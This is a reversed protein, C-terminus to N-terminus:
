RWTRRRSAGLGLVALALLALAAANLSPVPTVDGPAVVKAVAVGVPDRIVGNVAGDDDGAGGDTLSASVTDGAASGHTYWQAQGGVLGFKRVLAGAPLAQAHQLRLDVSAGPACGTISLDTLGLPYDYAPDAPLAGTPPAPLAIVAADSAFTCQPDSSTFSVQVVGGAGMVSVSRLLPVVPASAASAAGTGAATVAALTFSYATGNRLGTLVCPSAACTHSAGDVSSTALYSTIAEGGTFSPATFSLSVQANGPTVSDLTPAAAPVAHIAFSQPVPTAAAFAANGAQRAEITCTGTTVPTLLGVPTITCVTPTQSTFSVALNSSATATLSPTSGFAQAGPNAFSITQSANPTVPNSPASAAGPGILNHARVTFTYATGNTLGTITCASSTCTASGQAPNAVASYSTIPSGGTSAPATFTVTAKTDGATATGITPAGPVIANVTFSQTVPSAANVSGSGTQSAEISCTGASLFNVQGGVTITCVTTTTSAFSVTLSASSTATLTPTTGFSQTGPNTFTITQNAKPTVANSAASPASTKSDTNTATVTFTYSTGNTLGTVTCPSSICTGTINGPSSTATYSSLATGGTFAPATFSVSAQANGATATGITPAGPAAANVTLTPNHTVSCSNADTVTASYSYNGAQTPTGALTSGSGVLGPATSNSTYSYPTIGGTATFSQSFATGVTATLAGNPSLTLVAPQTVIATANSSKGAADTVTVTYTGAPRGTITATGQGSSWAYSYPPMGGGATVTATGNSGGYCSVDTKSPILNLCAGTTFTAAAGMATGAGNSARVRYHYTTNCILGGITQTLSGSTTVLPTTTGYSTTIGYEFQASTGNPLVTANLTAGYATVATASGTSATPPTPCAATTFTLPSGSFNTSGTTAKVRFQYTTACSLNTLNVSTSTTGADATISGGTTAAVSTNTNGMGWGFSVTLANGNDVVSGNLTASTPTINSAALTTATPTGPCTIVLTFSSGDAMLGTSQGISSGSTNCAIIQMAQVTDTLGAIYYGSPNLTLAHNTKPGDIYMAGAVATYDNFSLPPVAQPYRFINLYGTAGGTAALMRSYNASTITVYATVAAQAPGAFALWALVLLPWCRVRLPALLCALLIRAPRLFAHM